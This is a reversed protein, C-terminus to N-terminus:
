SRRNRVGPRYASVTRDGAISFRWPTPAGGGAVGVRPGTLVAADPMPGGALVRLPSGAATVDAGDLERDVALARTLRAPGRALDRDRAGPRRGRALELGAVVEGARLLVAEATGAPACVLNVCFHMGYTLYVYAHGPPGFMTANRATRGRYAHSGPDIAGAYAEVETLRVDVVGDATEREVVCGLLSRAVELVPRDFFDRPLPAPATLERGGV